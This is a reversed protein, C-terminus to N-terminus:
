QSSRAQSRPVPQVKSATAYMAVINEPPIDALLNHTACFVYGSGGALCPVVERVERRVDEPAGFPLVGQIDAGGGWFAIRGRCKEKWERYSHNGARWQVPNLIDFGTELISDLIDYIAGCSHLFTKVTPAIRHVADNARRFYPAFLDAFVPPPLITSTQTGHDDASFFLIDVYPAIEPLLQEVRGIASETVIDHLERVYDPETLCLMSFAPWGGREITIGAGLGSFMIARGTSERVRRCYDRVSRVTEDDIRQSKLEQRMARLDEKPLDSTLNLPEGGHPLDFVSSSPLMTMNDLVISGDPRAEYKEPAMVLASLRGGFDYPHWRAPEIFANTCTDWHVGVCDCDLADLVDTDVLALMQRTDFIRPRRPPLGLAEVLGPYAFCSISTAAMAGLDKPIRDTSRGNLAAMIRERRSTM